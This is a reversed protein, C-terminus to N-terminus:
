GPWKGIPCSEQLLKSKAATFCGCIKCRLGTHHECTACTQLRVASSRRVPDDQVGIRRVPGHGQDRLPGHPPPEPGHHVQTDDIGRCPSRGHRRRGAVRRSLRAPGCTVGTSAPTPWTDFQGMRYKQLYAGYWGAQPKGLQSFLNISDQARAIADDRRGLEALQIGQYWLLNAEQHRDGVQRTLALAQDYHSLARQSEGLNSAVLGLRELALKEAMIDGTSRAHALDQEFLPRARGPQQAYLLAM